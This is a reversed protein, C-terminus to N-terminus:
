PHLLIFYVWVTTHRDEHQGCTKSYWMLLNCVFDAFLATESWWLAVNLQLKPIFIFNLESLCVFLSNHDICHTYSDKM